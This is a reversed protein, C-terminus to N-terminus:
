PMPIAAVDANGKDVSEASYMYVNPDYAGKDVAATANPAALAERASARKRKPEAKEEFPEAVTEADVVDYDQAEETIGLGQLIDPFLDRLLFARARNKLMRKPYQTWTGPKEWLGAKKADAVTFSGRSPNPYGKRQCVYTYGTVTGDEKGPIEEFDDWELLGSRKCVGVLADGWITTTGNVDSIKQVSLFPNLGLMNGWVIRMAASETSCNKPLMKARNMMDAFAFTQALDRMKVGNDSLELTAIQPDLKMLENVENM